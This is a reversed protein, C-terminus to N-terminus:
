VKTLAKTYNLVEEVIDKMNKGSTPRYIFEYFETKNNACIGVRCTAKSQVLINDILINECRPDIHFIFDFKTNIFKLINESNVKGTLTFDTESFFDYKFEHNEKGVPLYSLVTVQKKDQELLHVLHKIAEHKEIDEVSFILGVKQSEFYPINTRAFAGGKKLRQRTRWALVRHTLAKM